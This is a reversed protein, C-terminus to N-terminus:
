VRSGLFRAQPRTKPNLNKPKPNPSGSSGLEGSLAQSRVHCQGRGGTRPNSESNPCPQVLQVPVQAPTGM